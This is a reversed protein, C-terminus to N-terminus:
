GPDPVSSPSAPTAASRAPPSTAYVAGGRVNVRSAVPGIDSVKQIREEVAPVGRRRQSVLLRVALLRRTCWSGEVGVSGSPSGAGM